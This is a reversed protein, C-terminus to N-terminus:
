RRYSTNKRTLDLGKTTAAAAKVNGNFLIDGGQSKPEIADLKPDPLIFSPDMALVHHETLWPAGILIQPCRPADDESEKEYYEQHHKELLEFEARYAQLTIEESDLDQKERVDFTLTVRSSIAIDIDNFSSYHDVTVDKGKSKRLKGKVPHPTIKKGTAAEIKELLEETIFNASAGTDLKAFICGDTGDAKRIILTLWTPDRAEATDAIDSTGDSTLESTPSQTEVDSAMVPLTPTSPTAGDESIPEGPSIINEQTILGAARADAAQATGLLQNEHATSGTTPTTSIDPAIEHSSIGTALTNAPEPIGAPIDVDLEFPTTPQLNTM